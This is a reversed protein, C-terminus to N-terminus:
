KGYIIWVPEICIFAMHEGKWGCGDTTINFGQNVSGDSDPESAIPETNELWGWVFSICQQLNMKYPFLQISKDNEKVGDLLFMKNDVVKYACATTTQKEYESTFAVQMAIDFVHKGRYRIKIDNNM